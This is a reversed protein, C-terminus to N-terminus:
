SEVLPNVWVIEPNSRHSGRCRGIWRLIIHGALHMWLSPLLGNTADTPPGRDRDCVDLNTITTSFFCTTAFSQEIV